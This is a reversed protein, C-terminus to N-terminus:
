SSKFLLTKKLSVEFKKKIFNFLKKLHKNQDRFCAGLHVWNHVIDFIDQIQLM